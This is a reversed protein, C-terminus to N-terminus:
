GSQQEQCDHRTATRRYGCQRSRCAPFAARLAQISPLNSPAFVDRLLSSGTPTALMFMVYSPSGLRPHRFFSGCLLSYGIREYYPIMDRHVNIVDVRMGAAYQDYRVAKIFQRMVALNAPVNAARVFRSGSGVLNRFEAVARPYHEECDIKGRRAQNVRVTAAPTAAQYLVYIEATQDYEDVPRSQASRTARVAVADNFVPATNGSCARMRYGAKWMASSSDNVIERCDTSSEKTINM